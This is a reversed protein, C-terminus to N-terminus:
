AGRALSGEAALLLRKRNLGWRYGGLAGSTRIVRHCPIVMAVPNAGVATGVARAAGPRAAASALAQYTTTAGAPITLLAQWVQLQFNSGRVHLSLPGYGGAGLFQTLPQATRAHDQLLRAGPWAAQLTGRFANADPAAGVFALHCIGRDTMALGVPGFPSDHCGWHITLGRGGDRLEGPTMAHLTVALDHLRGPSSLSSGYTADLVSEGAALRRSAERGLLYQLFRKPSIGVEQRFLRQFHSPALGAARAVDDLGPRTEAHAVLWHIATAM